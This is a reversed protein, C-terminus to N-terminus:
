RGASRPPGSCGVPECNRGDCAWGCTGHSNATSNPIIQNTSNPPNQPVSNPVLQPVEPAANPVVIGTSKPAVSDHIMQSTSNPVIQTPPLIATVGNQFTPSGQRSVGSNEIGAPGVLPTVPNPVGGM